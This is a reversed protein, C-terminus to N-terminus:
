QKVKFQGRTAIIINSLEQYCPGDIKLDMIKMDVDKKDTKIDVDVKAFVLQIYSFDGRLITGCLECGITVGPNPMKALATRCRDLMKEYCDECTDLDLEKGLPLITKRSSLVEIKQGEVSYYTFQSKYEIGCLDCLIGDREPLLM